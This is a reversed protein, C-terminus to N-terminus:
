RLHATYLTCHIIHLEYHSTHTICQFTYFTYNAIYLLGHGFAGSTIFCSIGGMKRNWKTWDKLNKEKSIKKQGKKRTRTVIPGYPVGM